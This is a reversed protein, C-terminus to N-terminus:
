QPERAVLERMKNVLAQPYLFMQLDSKWKRLEGDLANLRDPAIKALIEELYKISKGHAPFQELVAVLHRMAADPRNAEMNSRMHKYSRHSEAARDCAHTLRNEILDASFRIDEERLDVKWQDHDGSRFHRTGWVPAELKDLRLGAIKHFRTVKELYARANNKLEDFLVIQIKLEEYDAEFANLWSEIWQIATPLFTRVQFRLQEQYSLEFYNYPLHQFMSAHRRISPGVRKLHHTWSVMADRPDRILVTVRRQGADQLAAINFHSAAMHTGYVYGRDVYRRVGKALLIQSDFDGVSYFDKRLKYYGTEVKSIISRNLIFYPM